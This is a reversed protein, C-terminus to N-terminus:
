GENKKIISDVELIFFKAKDLYGKIQPYTLVITKYNDSCIVFKDRRSFEVPSKKHEIVAKKLDRMLIAFEKDLKFKDQLINTYLFFKSEFTQNFPPIRKYMREFHLLASLSSTFSLFINELTALLIKTDRVLPYTVNIMHDAIKHKKKALDLHDKYNMMNNNTIQDAKDM